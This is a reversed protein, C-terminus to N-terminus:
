SLALVCSPKTRSLFNRRTRVAAALGDLVAATAAIDM